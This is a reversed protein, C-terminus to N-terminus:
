GDERRRRREDLVERWPPPDHRAHRPFLCRPRGLWSVVLGSVVGVVMVLGLAFATQAYPIVQAADSGYRSQAVQFLLLGFGQCLLGLYVLVAGGAFGRAFAPSTVDSFSGVSRRWVRESRRSAVWLSLGALALALLGVSGIWDGM